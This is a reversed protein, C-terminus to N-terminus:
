QSCGSIFSCTFFAFCLFSVFNPVCMFPSILEASKATPCPAASACLHLATMGGQSIPVAACADAGALALLLVADARANAAATLLPDLCMCHTSTAAREQDHLKAKGAGKAKGDVVFAGTGDPRLKRSERLRVGFPARHALLSRRMAPTDCRQLLVRLVDVHGGAAALHLPTRGALDSDDVACARGRTQIGPVLAAAAASGSANGSANGSDAFAAGSEGGGVAVGGSAPECLSHVDLLWEVVAAHGNRAAMLMGASAATSATTPEETTLEVEAIVVSDRPPAADKAKAASYEAAAREGSAARDADHGAGSASDRGPRPMMIKRVFAKWGRSTSVSVDYRFTRLASAAASSIEQSPPPSFRFRRNETRVAIKRIPHRAQMTAAKVAAAVQAASGTGSQSQLKAAALTAQAEASKDHYLTMRFRRVNVQKKGCYVIYLGVCQAEEAAADTGPEVAGFGGAAGGRAVSPKAQVSM